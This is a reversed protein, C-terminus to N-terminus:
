TSKDIDGAWWMINKASCYYSSQELTTYEKGYTYQILLAKICIIIVNLPLYYLIPHDVKAPLGQSRASIGESTQWCRTLHLCKSQKRLDQVWWGAGESVLHLGSFLLLNLFTGVLLWLKILSLVKIQYWLLCLLSQPALWYTSGWWPGAQAEARAERSPASPCPRTLWIVGKRRLTSKTRTKLVDVCLLRFCLGIPIFLPWDWWHSEQRWWCDQETRPLFM